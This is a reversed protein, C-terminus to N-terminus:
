EPEGEKKKAHHSKVAEWNSPQDLLAASHDDSTEFTEGRKVAASRPADHGAFGGLVVEVSEFPGVYKVKAM